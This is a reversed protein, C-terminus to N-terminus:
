RNSKQRTTALPKESLVHKGAELARRTWDGRIATPLPIYVADIDNRSM